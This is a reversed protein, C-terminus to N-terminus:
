RASLRDIWLVGAATLVVAGCFLWAGAPTGFLFQFSNVGALAGLGVAGFPLLAMMQGSARASALEIDVIERVRREKRLNDAVRSLVDAIPAGSRESVRWAAAVTSLSAGGPERSQGIFAAAVDGGLDAVASARRLVPFDTAAERLALIPIQGSRMLTSLLKAAQAVEAELRRAAKRRRQRLLLMALVFVGVAAAIGWAMGGTTGFALFGVVLAAGGPSSVSPVSMPARVHTQLRAMAHRRANPTAAWALMAATFTLWM